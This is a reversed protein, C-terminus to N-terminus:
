PMEHLSQLRKVVVVGKAGGDDGALPKVKEKSKRGDRPLIKGARSMGEVGARKAEVILCDHQFMDLGDVAIGELLVDRKLQDSISEEMSSLGNSCKRESVSSDVDEHHSEESEIVSDSGQLVLGLDFQGKQEIIGNPAQQM